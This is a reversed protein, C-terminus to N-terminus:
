EIPLISVVRSGSGEEISGQLRQDDGCWDQNLDVLQELAPPQGMHHRLEEFIDGGSSESDFVQDRLIVGAGRLDALLVRIRADPEYIRGNQAHHLPQPFPLQRREVVPM